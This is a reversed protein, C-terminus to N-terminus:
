SPSLVKMAKARRREMIVKADERKLLEQADTGVAIGTDGYRLHHQSKKEGSELPPFLGAIAFLNYFATTLPIVVPLFPAPFMNVFSFEEAHNGLTGDENRYFFRLYTWSFPISIFSFTIDRAFVRFRLIRLMFQILFAYFPLNNYTLRPFAQTIAAEKKHMRAFMSLTFFAGSFGYQPEILMIEDASAFFRIFAIASTGLSSALVCVAFFLAFQDSAFNIDETVVWLGVLDAALKLINTEYFCSTILNWVYTNAFLTNAAVLGVVSPCDKIVFNLGFLIIITIGCGISLFRKKFEDVFDNSSM